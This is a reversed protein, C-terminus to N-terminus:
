RPPPQENSDRPAVPDIHTVGPSPEFDNTRRYLSESDSYGDGDSPDADPPHEPEEDESPEWHASVVIM